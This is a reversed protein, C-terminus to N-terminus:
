GIEMVNDRVLASKEACHVRVTKRSVGFEVAIKHVSKGSSFESQMAKREAANTIRYGRPQARLVDVAHVKNERPTCWELNEARNDTKIGNKHNVQHKETPPAGHFAKAVFRHVAFKRRRGERQIQVWSYGQRDVYPRVIIEWIFTKNNPRDKSSCDAMRALRKISGDDGVEYYGEYGEIARWEVM